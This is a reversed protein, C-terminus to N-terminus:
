AINLDNTEQTESIHNRIDSDNDDDSVIIVDEDNNPGTALLKLNKLSQSKNKKKFFLNYILINFLM